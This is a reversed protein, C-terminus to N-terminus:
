INKMDWHPSLLVSNWKEWTLGHDKSRLILVGCYNGFYYGSDVLCAVYIDGTTYNYDAAFAVYPGLSDEILVDPSDWRSDSMPAQSVLLLSLFLLM